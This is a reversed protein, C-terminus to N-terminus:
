SAEPPLAGGDIKMKCDNAHWRCVGWAKQIKFGYKEVVLVAHLSERTCGAVCCAGVTKEYWQSRAWTTFVFCAVGGLLFAGVLPV